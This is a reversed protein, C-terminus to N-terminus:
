EIKIERLRPAVGIEGIYLKLSKSSERGAELEVVLDGEQGTKLTKPETYLKIGRSSLLTDETLTLARKGSNICAIRVVRSGKFSVSQQRLLLEGCNYPYELGQGAKPEVYGRVKVVATPHSQSHNTYILLKHEFPGPHGKGSFRLTITGRERGKLVARDSGKLCSCTTRTYYLLTSDSSNEVAISREITDIESVRGLELVAGCEVLLSSRVTRPNALSDLTAKPIIKFQGYAQFALFLAVLTLLHRM